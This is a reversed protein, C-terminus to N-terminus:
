LNEVKRIKAAIEAMQKQLKSKGRKTKETLKKVALDGYKESLIKKTAAKMGAIGSVVSIKVNHSATDKHYSSAKKKAAKNKVGFLVGQKPAAKKKVKKSYIVATKNGKKLVKQLGSVKPKLKGGTKTYYGKPDVKEGKAYAFAQKLTCGTKKRYAIAKKFTAQNKKQAATM